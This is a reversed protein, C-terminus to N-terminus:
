QAGGTIERVWRKAMTVLRRNTLGYSYNRRYERGDAVYTLATLDPERYFGVLGQSTTVYGISYPYERGGAKAEYVYARGAKYNRDSPQSKKTM